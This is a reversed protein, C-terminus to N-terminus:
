GRLPLVPRGTRVQALTAFKTHFNGKVKVQLFLSKWFLVSMGLIQKGDGCVFLLSDKDFLFILVGVDALIRCRFECNFIRHVDVCQQPLIKLTKINLRLRYVVCEIIM